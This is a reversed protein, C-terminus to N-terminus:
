INSINLEEAKSTPTKNLLLKSFESVLDAESVVSLSSKDRSNFLCLTILYRRAEGPMLFQSLQEYNVDKYMSIKLTTLHEIVKDDGM